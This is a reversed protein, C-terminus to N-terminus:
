RGDCGRLQRCLGGDPQDAIWAVDSGGAMCAIRQGDRVPAVRRHGAPPSEEAGRVMEWERPGDTVCVREGAEVVM